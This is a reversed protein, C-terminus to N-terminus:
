EVGTQATCKACSPRRGHRNQIGNPKFYSRPSLRARDKPIECCEGDHGFRTPVRSRFRVDRCQVAPRLRRRREREDSVRTGCRTDERLITDRADPANAGAGSVCGAPPPANERSLTGSRSAASTADRLPERVKLVYALEAGSRTNFVGGASQTGSVRAPNRVVRVAGDLANKERRVFSGDQALSRFCVCVCVCM